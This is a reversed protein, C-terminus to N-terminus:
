MSNIVNLLDRVYALIISHLENLGKEYDSFQLVPISNEEAKQLMFDQIERAAKFEDERISEDDSVSRLKALSYKTLFMARHTEEDPNVVVEMVQPEESFIAGPTLHVGEVITDTAETLTRKVLKLVIPKILECQALYGRIIPSLDEPGSQKYKHAQYTHCFLEPYEEQSVMSRMVQRVTDTTIIRTASISHILDITLMSKGSASAGELVIILPAASNDKRVEDYNRMMRFHEAPNGNLLNLVDNFLQEESVQKEHSLSELAGKMVQSTEEHSLGCLRLRGQLVTLPFPLTFDDITIHM